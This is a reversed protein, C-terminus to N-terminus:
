RGRRLWQPLVSLHRAVEDLYAKKYPRIAGLGLDPMNMETDSEIPEATWANHIEQGVVERMKAILTEYAESVRRSETSLWASYYSIDAQVRSLETSIRVREDESLSARRRRVVFPFEEYAVAAAFAKSFVDRQRNQRERHGSLWANIALAAISVAGTIAAVIIAVPVGGGNM